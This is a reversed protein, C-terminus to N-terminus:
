KKHQPLQSVSLNLFVDLTVCSCHHYQVQFGASQCCIGAEPYKQRRYGQKFSVAQSLGNQGLGQMMGVLWKGFYPYKSHQTNSAFIFLDAESDSSAGSFSLPSFSPAPRVGVFCRLNLITCREPQWLFAGTLSFSLSIRQIAILRHGVVLELDQCVRHILINECIRLISQLHCLSLACCKIFVAHIIKNFMLSSLTGCYKYGQKSVEENQWMGTAKSYPLPRPKVGEGGRLSQGKTVRM